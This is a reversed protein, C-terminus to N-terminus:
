IFLFQTNLFWLLISFQFHRGCKKLSFTVNPIVEYNQLEYGCEEVFEQVCAMWVKILRAFLLSNQFLIQNPQVLHGHM